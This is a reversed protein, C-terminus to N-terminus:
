PVVEARPYRSMEQTRVWGAWGTLSDLIARLRACCHQLPSSSRMALCARAVSPSSNHASKTACALAHSLSAKQLGMRRQAGGCPSAHGRLKLMSTVHAPAYTVSPSSCRSWSCSKTTVHSMHCTPAPARPAGAGARARPVVADVARKEKQTVQEERHVVVWRFPRRRQAETAARAYGSQTLGARTPQTHVAPQRTVHASRAM